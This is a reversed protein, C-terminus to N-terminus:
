LFINTNLLRVDEVDKFNIERMWKIIELLSTEEKLLNKLNFKPEYPPILLSNGRNEECVDVRDDIILTKSLDYFKLSLNKSVLVNDEDEQIFCDSRTFVNKPSFESEHQFIVSEIMRVYRFYGASWIDINGVTKLFSIFERLHPRLIILLEDKKGVGKPKSDSSDILTYKFVRDRLEEIECIRDFFDIDKQSVLQKKFICHVVTSDMDLIIKKNEVCDM